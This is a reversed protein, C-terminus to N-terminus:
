LARSNSRGPGRTAERSNKTSANRSYCYDKHDKTQAGIEKLEVGILLGRIATTKSTEKTSANRSYYYKEELPNRYMRSGKFPGKTIEPGISPERSYETTAILSTRGYGSIRTLVTSYEM